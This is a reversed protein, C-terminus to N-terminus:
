EGIRSLAGAGALATVIDAFEPFSIAVCDADDIVTDGEAILGAVTLAMAIRHDGFSSCAAAKLRVPGEVILGDDTEYIVAGMKKLGATIAMIRDTEKVRLERADRIVTTGAAQTAAVALVPIEDIIRPILRGGLEVARLPRNKITLDAVPEPGALRNGTLVIDAGMAQLADLIGTRTPNVGVGKVLIEAGSAVAGLVAFFAASSIDGPVALEKGTMRNGGTVRVARDSTRSIDAGFHALLRETHDRTPVPEVVITADRAHLGALLVASKVQASAVPMEYTIGKLKQGAIGLPACRGRGRARIEAGMRGLPEIVRDMPRKRLSGDGSLVSFFDQGALLGAFLRMTTGSNGCDLVDDPEKFGFRGRGAVALAGDTERIRVGLKKLLGITSACDRGRSYGTLVTEGEALSGLILGRHTISKDGNVAIDGKPKIGGQVQYKV